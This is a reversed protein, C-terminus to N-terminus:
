ARVSRRRHRDNRRGLGRRRLHQRLDKGFAQPALAWDKAILPAIFSLMLTDYGDIMAVVFCVVPVMYLLGAAPPRM